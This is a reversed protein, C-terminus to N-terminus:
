TPNDPVNRSQWLARSGGRSICTIVEDLDRETLDRHLAAAFRAVRKQDCNPIALAATVWAAAFRAAAVPGTSDGRALVFGFEDRGGTSEPLYLGALEYFVIGRCLLGVFCSAFEEPSWCHVHITRRRHLKYLEPSLSRPNYWERVHPPHIPPQFYIASCFERIEADTVERVDGHYKNLLVSLPTPQRPADFTLNRDPVVLVLRGHYRLVREFELLAAIPNALHEIVHCAVVADLGRSLIPVLGDADIDLNFDAKPGRPAGALEPWNADRGGEVSRDVYRIRASGAVPFPVHGPGIELVDGSLTQGIISRPDSSTPPESPNNM